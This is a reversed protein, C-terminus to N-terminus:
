SGTGAPVHVMRWFTPGDPLQIEGLDHYGHRAYLRRSDPSTAELYAPLGDLHQHGYTLLQGGLGQGQHDPHVGLAYLHRHPSTLHHRTMLDDLTHWRLLYPGFVEAVRLDGLPLGDITTYDFWIAAALHQGDTDPIVDIRGHNTLAEEAMLTFLGTMVHQRRDPDPILWRTVPEDFAAALLEAVADVCIRSGTSTTITM